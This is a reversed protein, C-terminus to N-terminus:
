DRESYWTTLNPGEISFSSQSLRNCLRLALSEVREFINSESTPFRPYQIRSVCFGTENGDTYIYETPLLAFCDGTEDCFDRVVVTAIGIDGAM